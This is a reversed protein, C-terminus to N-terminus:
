HALMRDAHQLLEGIQNVDKAVEGEVQVLQEMPVLSPHLRRVDDRTAGYRWGDLRRDMCWRDHEIRALRLVDEDLTGAGIKSLLRQLRAAHGADPALGTADTLGASWMMAPLHDASRLNARRLTEPLADWPLDATTSRNSGTRYAEHLKRAFAQSDPHGLAADKLSADPL